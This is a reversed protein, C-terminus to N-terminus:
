ITEDMKAAIFISLSQILAALVIGAGLFFEFGSIIGGAVALFSFVSALGIGRYIDSYKQMHTASTYCGLGPAIVWYLMSISAMLDSYFATHFSLVGILTFLIGAAIIKRWINLVPDKVMQRWSFYIFGILFVSMVYYMNEVWYVPLSLFITGLSVLWAAPILVIPGYQRIM